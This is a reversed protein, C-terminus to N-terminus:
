FKDKFVDSPVIDSGKPPPFSGVPQTTPIAPFEPPLIPDSIIKPRSNPLNSGTPYIPHYSNPLPKFPHM